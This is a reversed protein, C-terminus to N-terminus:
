LIHAANRILRIGKKAKAIKEKVHHNFNLNEDLHM